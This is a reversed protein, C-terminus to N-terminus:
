LWRRWIYIGDGGDNVKVSKWLVWFLGTEECPRSRSTWVKKGEDQAHWICQELVPWTWPGPIQYLPEKRWSHKGGSRQMAPENRYNLWRELLPKGPPVLPLSYPLCLPSPNSGQTLFIQLLDHCGVGTNKVPSDWPCLPRAAVTWPTEFLWVHSFRSLVCM